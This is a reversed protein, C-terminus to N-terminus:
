APRQRHLPLTTAEPHQPLLACGPHLCRTPQGRYSSPHRLPKTGVPNPQLRLFDVYALHEGSGSRNGVAGQGAKGKKFLSVGKGIPAPANRQKYGAHVDRIKMLRDAGNAWDPRRSEGKGAKAGAFVSEEGDDDGAKGSDSHAYHHGKSGDIPTRFGGLIVGSKLAPRHVGGSGVAQFPLDLLSRAV